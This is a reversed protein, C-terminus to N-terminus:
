RHVATWVNAADARAFQLVDLIEHWHRERRKPGMVVVMVM